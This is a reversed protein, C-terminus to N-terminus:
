RLGKLGLALLMLGAVILGAPPYIRWTGAVVLASGVVISGDLVVSRLLSSARTTTPM